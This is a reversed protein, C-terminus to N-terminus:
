DRSCPGNKFRVEKGDQIDDILQLLREAACEANWKQVLTHYAKKGMEQRKLPNDLLWKTKQYLDNINNEYILGNEGMEILYPVSGISGNAVVACGSNMSENMVAGWGEKRNSTFLFIESEEMYKRVQEAPMAGLLSVEEELHYDKIMERLKEEMPGIGIINLSFHYGAEKLKKAVLIPYEPHKLPILRAVWLITNQKKNTLVKEIDEYEKAIPFYGWKYTKNPYAFIFNCDRATYASACLMHLNKKRYRTHMKYCSYAVRPDLIRWKGEKFFREHYRFTLKNAQLRDQIFIDPAEGIIVVDSSTGLELATQFNKGEFSKIVFPFQDSKDTYGLKKREESMSTTAVFRFQGNTLKYMAQCFPIQHDNIYNSFFTIM